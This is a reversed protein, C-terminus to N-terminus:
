LDKQMTLLTCALGRQAMNDWHPLCTGLANSCNSHLIVFLALHKEVRPKRVELVAVLEDAKVSWAAGAEEGPM